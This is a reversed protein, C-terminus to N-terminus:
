YYCILIDVNVSDCYVNSMIRLLGSQIYPQICGACHSWSGVSVSLIRDESLGYDSLTCLTEYYNGMASKTGITVTFNIVKRKPLSSLSSSVSANIDKQTKSQNVDYVSSTDIYKDTLKIVEAM